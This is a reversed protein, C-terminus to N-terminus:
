KRSNFPIDYMTDFHEGNPKSRKEATTKVSICYYEKEKDDEFHNILFETMLIFGFTM